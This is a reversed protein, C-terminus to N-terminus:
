FFSFKTVPWLRFSIKGIIDDKSVLGIKRSDLSNDRNDGLVFYMDKPVTEYGLDQLEFDPTDVDKLYDEKFTAGKCIFLTGETVAKSNYTLGLIEMAERGATDAELLLGAQELCKIYDSFTYKVMVKM